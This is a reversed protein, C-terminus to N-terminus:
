NRAMMTDIQEQMVVIKREAQMIRKLEVRSKFIIKLDAIEIKLLQLEDDIKKVEAKKRPKLKTKKIEKKVM